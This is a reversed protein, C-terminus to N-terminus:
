KGVETWSWGHDPCWAGTAGCQCKATMRQGNPCAKGTEERSCRPDPVGSGVGRKTSDIPSHRHTSM